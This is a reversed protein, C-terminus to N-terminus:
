NNELATLAGDLDNRQIAECIAMHDPMQGPSENYRSYMARLIPQQMRIRDSLQNLKSNEAFAYIYAMFHGVIM